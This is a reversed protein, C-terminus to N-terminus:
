QSNMLTFIKDLFYPHNLVYDVAEDCDAIYNGMIQIVLKCVEDRPDTLFRDIIQFTEVM